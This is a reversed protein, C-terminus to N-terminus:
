SFGFRKPKKRVRGSRRPPVPVAKPPAAKPAIKKQKPKGGQNLLLGKLNSKQKALSQKKKSVIKGTKNKVLDKKKLKGSTQVAIGKFVQLRTGIKKMKILDRDSITVPSM